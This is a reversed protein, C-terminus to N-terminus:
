LEILRRRSWVSTTIVADAARLAARERMRIEGPDNEAHRLGLPMHVLVVLRLRRAHPVLVEPATSAILGDLVVLAGDPICRVTADLSGFSAAEPQAWFGSVAHEHVSWGISTLERCLNRDYTNGGSPRAADDVGDPVVFHVTRV